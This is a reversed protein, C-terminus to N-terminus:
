SNLRKKKREEKKKSTHLVDYFMRNILQFAICQSLCM